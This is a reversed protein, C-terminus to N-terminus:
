VGDGRGFLEFRLHEGEFDDILQALHSLNRVRVSDVSKLRANRVDQFGLNVSHALVYSLVM